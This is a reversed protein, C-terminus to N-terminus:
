DRGWRVEATWHGSNDRFCGPCRRDNMGLYLMGGATLRTRFHSGVCFPKGRPGIRGVLSYLPCGPAPFEHWALRDRKGDPDRPHPCGVQDCVTGWARIRLVQGARLSIGTPQFDLPAVRITRSHSGEAGSGAIIEV